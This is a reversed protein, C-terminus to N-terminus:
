DQWDKAPCDDDHSDGLDNKDCLLCLEGCQWKYHCPQCVGHDKISTKDGDKARSGCRPCIM